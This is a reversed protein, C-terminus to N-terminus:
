LPRTLWLFRVNRTIPTVTMAPVFGVNLQSRAGRARERMLDFGTNDRQRNEQVCRKTGRLAFALVLLSHFLRLTPKTGSIVTVRRARSARGTGVIPPAPWGIRM